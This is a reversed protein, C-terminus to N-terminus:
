RFRWGVHLVQTSVSPSLEVTTSTERPWFAEFTPKSPSPAGGLQEDDTRYANNSSSSSASGLATTGGRVVRPLHRCNDMMSSPGMEPTEESGDGDVTTTTSSDTSSSWWSDIHRPLPSPTLMSELDEDNNERFDVVSNARDLLLPPLQFKTTNSQGGDGDEDNNSITNLSFDSCGRDLSYGESTSGGEGPLSSGISRVVDEWRPLSAVPSFSGDSALSDFSTDESKKIAVPPELIEESTVPRRTDDASSRCYYHTAPNGDYHGRYAVPEAAGICM